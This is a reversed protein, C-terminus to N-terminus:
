WRRTVHRMLLVNGPHQARQPGDEEASILGAFGSSGIRRTLKERVQEFAPRRFLPAFNPALPLLLRFMMPLRREQKRGDALTVYTIQAWVHGIYWAMGGLSLAWLTDIALMQWSTGM